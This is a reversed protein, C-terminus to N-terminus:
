FMSATDSLSIDRNSRSTVIPNGSADLDIVATEGPRYDGALLVESLPDEVILTVARRLPRAGYTQDYGQQCIHDKISESVELGIGLSLDLM